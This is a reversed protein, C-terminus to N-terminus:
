FAALILFLLRWFVDSLHCLCKSTWFLFVMCLNYIHKLVQFCFFFGLVCLSLWRFMVWYCQVISVALTNCFLFSSLCNDYNIMYLFSWWTWTMCMLTAYYCLFWYFSKELTHREKSHQNIIRLSTRLVIPIKSKVLMRVIDFSIRTGM